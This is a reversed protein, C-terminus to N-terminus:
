HPSFIRYSAYDVGQIRVLRKAVIAVKEGSVMLPMKLPGYELGDAGRDTAPYLTAFDLANLVDYPVQDILPRASQVGQIRLRVDALSFPDETKPGGLCTGVDAHKRECQLRVYLSGNFSELQAIKVPPADVLALTVDLIQFSADAVPSVTSIGQADGSKTEVTASQKAGYFRAGGGCGSVFLLAAGLIMRNLDQTFFMM